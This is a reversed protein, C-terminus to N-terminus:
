LHLIDEIKDLSYRKRQERWKHIDEDSTFKLEDPLIHMLEHDKLAKGSGEFACSTCQVSIYCFSVDITYM